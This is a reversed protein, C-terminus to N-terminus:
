PGVGAPPATLFPSYILGSNVKDGTGGPNTAVTPGTASGWWNNAANIATGRGQEAGFSTNGTISSQSITVTAFDDQLGVANASITSSSISATTSNNIFVGISSSHSFECNAAVLPQGASVMRGASGGYRVITETLTNPAGSGFLGLSGWDGPAPATASGDGNTDGDFSDDKLSTFVVPQGSLGDAVLSGEQGSFGSNQLKVVVGPALTLNQRIGVNGLRLVYPIPLAPWIPAAGAAVNRALVDVGNLGNGSASVTGPANLSGIDPDIQMAVGNGVFTVTDLTLSAPAGGSGPPNAAILGNGANNQFSVNQLTV